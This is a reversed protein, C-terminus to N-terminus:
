CANQAGVIHWVRFEMKYHILIPKAGASTVVFQLYIGWWVTPLLKTASLACFM